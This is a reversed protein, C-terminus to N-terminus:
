DTLTAGGAEIGHYHGTVEGHALILKNKQETKLGEPIKDVRRAIVDGQQFTNKAIKTKSM